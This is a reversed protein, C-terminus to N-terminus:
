GNTQKLTRPGTQPVKPIPLVDSSSYHRNLGFHTSRFPLLLSSTLTPIPTDLGSSASLLQQKLNPTPDATTSEMNVNEELFAVTPLPTYLEQTSLNFLHQELNPTQVDTTSEINVNKKRFIWLLRPLTWGLLHQFCSALVKEKDLVTPNATEDINFIQDPTFNHKKYYM